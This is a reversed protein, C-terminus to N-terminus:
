RQAFAGSQRTHDLARVPKRGPRVLRGRAIRTIVGERSHALETEDVIGFVGSGLRLFQYNSITLVGLALVVGDIIDALLHDVRDPPVAGHVFTEANVRRDVAFQLFDSFFRKASIEVFGLLMRTVIM